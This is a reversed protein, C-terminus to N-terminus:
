AYLLSRRGGVVGGADPGSEARGRCRLVDHQQSEECDPLLSDLTGAPRRTAGALRSRTSGGRSSTAHGPAAGTSAGREPVAAAPLVVAAAPYQDPLGEAVAPDLVLRLWILGTGVLRDRLRSRARARWSRFGRPAFSGSAAPVRPRHERARQRARHGHLTLDAWRKPWVADSRAPARAAEDHALKIARGEVLTAATEKRQRRRQSLGRHARAVAVSRRPVSTRDTPLVSMNDQQM